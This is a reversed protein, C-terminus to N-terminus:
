LILGISTRYRAFVAFAPLQQVPVLRVKVADDVPYVLSRTPDLDAMDAMARSVSDDLIM